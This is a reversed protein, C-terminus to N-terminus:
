DSMLTRTWLCRWTWWNSCNKTLLPWYGKLSSWMPGMCPERLPCVWPWLSAHWYNLLVFCTSGPYVISVSFNLPSKEHILLRTCHLLSHDFNTCVASHSLTTLGGVYQTSLEATRPSTMSPSKSTNGRKWSPSPRLWSTLILPTQFHVGLSIILMLRWWVPAAKATQSPLILQCKLCHEHLAACMCSNSKQSSGLGSELVRIVQTILTTSMRPLQRM